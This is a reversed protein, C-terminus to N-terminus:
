EVGCGGVGGVGTLEVRLPVREPEPTDDHVFYVLYTYNMQTQADRTTVSWKDAATNRVESTKGLYVKSTANTLLDAFLMHTPRVQDGGPYDKWAIFSCTSDPARRDFTFVVQQAFFLLEITNSGGFRGRVAYARAVPDWAEEFALTYVNAASNHFNASM